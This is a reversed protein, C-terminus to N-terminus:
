KKAKRLATEELPVSRRVCGLSLRQVSVAVELLVLIVSRFEGDEERRNFSEKAIDLPRAFRRPQLNERNGGGLFTGEFLLQSFTCRTFESRPTTLGRASAIEVKKERERERSICIETRSFTGELDGRGRRSSCKAPIKCQFM